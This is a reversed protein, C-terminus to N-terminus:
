LVMGGDVGIVQGTVYASLDSALFLAVKAVDDPTGIRGMAIASAAAEFHTPQLSRGMDTDILGPAVANVRISKAALEKALSRTLGILAAKSASYVSQGQFGVAGVISSLNIISGGGSRQMLRSAYQSCRIAGFVNVDFLQQAKTSSVMGILTQDMVGANNVLVDVRGSKSLAEQFLRKVDADSTVDCPMLAARGAVSPELEAAVSQLRHGDRAALFVQAGHELFTRAISLGIGRSAGTVVAVKDLLLM